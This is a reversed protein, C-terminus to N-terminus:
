VLKFPEEIDMKVPSIEAKDIPLEEEMADSSKEKPIEEELPEVDAPAEMDEKEVEPSESTKLNDHKEKYKESAM